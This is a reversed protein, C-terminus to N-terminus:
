EVPETIGLCWRIGDGDSDVDRRDV